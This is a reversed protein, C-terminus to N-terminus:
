VFPLSPEGMDSLSRNFTAIKKEILCLHFNRENLSNTCNLIIHLKFHGCRQFPVRVKLTYLEHLNKLKNAEKFKIAYPSLCHSMVIDSSRFLTRKNNKGISTLARRNDVLVLVLLCFFINELRKEMWLLSFFRLLYLPRLHQVFSISKAQPTASTAQTTVSHRLLLM